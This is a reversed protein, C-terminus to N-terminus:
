KLWHEDREIPMSIDLHGVLTEGSNGDILLQVKEIEPFTTLTM